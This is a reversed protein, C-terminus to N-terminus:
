QSIIEKSAKLSSLLKQGGRGKVFWQRLYFCLILLLQLFVHANQLKICWFDDSFTYLNCFNEPPIICGISIIEVCM